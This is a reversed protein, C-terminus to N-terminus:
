KIFTYLKGNRPRMDMEGKFGRKLLERVLSGLFFGHSVILINEKGSSNILNLFEEVRKQTQIKGEPQSPKNKFWAIRAATHWIFSPLIINRKTFPLIPVECLLDTTIIEGNYITQATKVARPLSSSYCIDWENKNIILGNSTVDAYDYNKMAEEFQSSSLKGEGPKINVKFHRVLGLKMKSNNIKDM